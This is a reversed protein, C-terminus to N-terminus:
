RLLINWTGLDQAPGACVTSGVVRGFQGICRFAKRTSPLAGYAVNEIPYRIGM